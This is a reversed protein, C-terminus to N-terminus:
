VELLGYRRSKEGGGGLGGAEGGGGGGDPRGRGVVVLIVHTFGCTYDIRLVLM